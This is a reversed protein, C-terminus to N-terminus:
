KLSIGRQHGALQQHPRSNYANNLSPRSASMGPFSPETVTTQIYQEPKSITGVSDASPGDKGVLSIAHSSSAVFLQKAKNDSSLRRVGVVGVERRIAGVIGPSRSDPSPVHVPDTSSSYVGMASSTSANASSKQHINNPKTPQVVASANLMMGQKDENTIKRDSVNSVADISQRGHSDSPGNLSRQNTYAASSRYCLYYM